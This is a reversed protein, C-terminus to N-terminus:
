IKYFDYQGCLAIAVRCIFITPNHQTNKAIQYTISLILAKSEIQFANPNYRDAEQCEYRYAGTWDIVQQVKRCRVLICTFIYISMSILLARICVHVTKYFYTSRRYGQKCLRRCRIYIYMDMYVCM